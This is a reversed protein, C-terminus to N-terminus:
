QACPVVCFVRAFLLRVRFLQFRGDDGGIAGSEKALTYFHRLVVAGERGPPAVGHRARAM